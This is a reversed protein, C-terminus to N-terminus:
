QEWKELYMESESVSIVQTVSMLRLWLLCLLYYIFAYAHICLHAKIIIM